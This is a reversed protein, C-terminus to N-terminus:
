GRELTLACVEDESLREGEAMLTRVEDAGLEAAIRQMALEQARQENPEQGGGMQRDRMQAYGILRAASRVRGEAAALLAFVPAFTAFTDWSAARAGEHVRSVVERAEEVAGSQLLANALNGEAVLRNYQSHGQRLLERGIEISRALDGMALAHDALNSLSRGLMSPSRCARALELSRELYRGVESLRGDFLDSYAYARFGWYRVRAPWDPREIRKMMDILVGRDAAPASMAAEAIALFRGRDDGLAEYLAAAKSLMLYAADRQAYRTVEGRARWYAAAAAPALSTEPGPELREGRERLEYDLGSVAFVFRSQGLLTAGLARDHQVSWDLAARLNDLEPAYTALWEGEEVSWSEEEAKDFFALMAAAHARQAADLEQPDERLKLLAYARTSELMRYRPAADPGAEVLSRDVLAGLADIAAWQDTSPDRSVATALSLPFGGAFVGLRRFVKQEPPSLLEYSWDLAALLTQQRTPANRTGATLLRFREGIREALGKLGLVPLRAAALEIALAIGDLNRCIGIALAVNDDTLAFRPDLAQARAELLAVAGYTCAEEAPVDAEPVGLPGLRFVREHRLKLASRSTALVAVGPAGELIADLCRAVADLMHEANDVVLLVERGKLAGILAALADGGAPPQVDLARAIAAPVLMPEAIPGLEIWAAGDRLSAEREVAAAIAVSTKGIGAAGSVTVLRHEGLLRGLAALEDNRGLLPAALRPMRRAPAAKAATGAAETREDAAQALTFRYGRGPITAIAKAGLLRRLASVQAQLNNEEVVLGPWALDLLENKTVVRERREVLALLVDFARSGLAATRGEVRVQREDPRIEVPGFRYAQAM